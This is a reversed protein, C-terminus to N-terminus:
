KTGQEAPRIQVAEFGLGTLFELQQGAELAEKKTELMADLADLYKEQLEIYIAIPVAGLRYHRDALEAAERLKEVADPSWQSMEKLKTQFTLGQAIIQRELHLQTVRLSAEAQQLRANATQINGQNRNWLPVPVSIGLGVTREREAGKEDSFFPGISVTPNRESRALSVKFGQQTLEAQRLRFEFNNTRSAALLAENPPPSSFRLSPSGIWIPKDLPQGRLQNLELLESQASLIALSARRQFTLANAELIRMELLPTIGAPERQVLVELLARYRDAVSSATAAKEQAVFIAFAMSRVRAALTAKFQGYGLEALEIQRNAIAKRLALRGPYEFTQQISVSWAAGEGLLQHSGDNNARKYGGRLNLEPNAIAGATTREGKAAAIEAKYFNLEPNSELAASVLSGVTEQNTPSLPNSNAPPSEPAAASLFSAAAVLLAAAYLYNNLFNQKM